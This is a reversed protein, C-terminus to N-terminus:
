HERSAYNYGTSYDIILYIKTKVKRKVSIVNALSKGQNLNVNFKFM